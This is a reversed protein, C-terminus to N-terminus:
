LLRKVILGIFNFFIYVELMCHCFSYMKGVKLSPMWSGCETALGGRVGPFVTIIMQIRVTAPSSHNEKNVQRYPNHVPEGDQGGNEVQSRYLQQNETQEAKHASPHSLSKM